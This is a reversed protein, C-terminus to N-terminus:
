AGVMGPTFATHMQPCKKRLKVGDDHEDTLENEIRLKRHSEDGAVAIQEARVGM